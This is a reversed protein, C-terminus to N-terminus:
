LQVVELFKMAQLIEMNSFSITRYIIIILFWDIPEYIEGREQLDMKSLSEQLRQGPDPVPDPHGSDCM